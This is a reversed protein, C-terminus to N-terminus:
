APRSNQLQELDNNFIYVLLYIKSFNFVNLTSHNSRHQNPATVTSKIRVPQMLQKLSSSDAATRLFLYIIISKQCVLSKFHNNQWKINDNFHDSEPIEAMEAEIPKAQFPQLKNM